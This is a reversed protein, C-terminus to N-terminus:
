LRAIREAISEQRKEVKQTKLPYFGAWSLEISQNVIQTAIEDNGGSLDFLGGKKTLLLELGHSTVPKRVAKRMKVFEILATRLTENETYNNIIDGFATSKNEKEKKNNDKISSDIITNDKTSTQGWVGTGTQVPVGQTTSVMGGYNKGFTYLSFSGNEKLFVYDLIEFEVLKQMRSIFGDKSIDILPLDELLKKHTLWAYEKGDVIIKKMKPYFDVFWRLVVLDTCDLKIEIQKNKRIVNKKFQLAYEQSFGEITYKM